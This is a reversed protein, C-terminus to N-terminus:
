CRVDDDLYLCVHDASVPAIAQPGHADTDYRHQHHTDALAEVPKKGLHPVTSGPIDAPKAQPAYVTKPRSVEGFSKFRLCCHGSHASQRPRRAPLSFLSTSTFRDLATLRRWQSTQKRWALSLYLSEFFSSETPRSPHSASPGVRAM